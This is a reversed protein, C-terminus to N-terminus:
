VVKVGTAGRERDRDAVGCGCVARERRDLSCAPRGKEWSGTLAPTQGLGM